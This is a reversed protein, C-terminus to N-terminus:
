LGFRENIATKIKEKTGMFMDRDYTTYINSKDVSTDIANMCQDIVAKVMQRQLEANINPYHSGGVELSIDHVTQEFKNM